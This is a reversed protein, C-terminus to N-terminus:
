MCEGLDCLGNSNQDTYRRCRGPFSCGKPCRIQCMAVAAPAEATPEQTPVATATEALTAAAEPNEAAIDASPAEVQTEQITEVKDVAEQTSDVDLATAETIASVKRITNETIVNSLALMSGLGVVGMMALFNRRDIDVSKVPVKVPVPTMGRQLTQKEGSGFIKSTINVVWRWHIGIKVVILGLTIFSAYTHIDLWATYNALNLNFWTSIVLGTEIIVVFGFMILLDVLYYWRNRAGSGKFLRRTVAEVWDLHLWFHVATLLIVGLGLWEHGIVGTLDLYFCFLFGVLMLMDIWWNKYQKNVKM